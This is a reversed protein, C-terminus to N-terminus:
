DARQQTITFGQSEQTEESMNELETLELTDEYM